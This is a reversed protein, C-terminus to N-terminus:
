RLIALDNSYPKSPPTGYELIIEGKKSKIRRRSIHLVAREESAPKKKENDRTPFSRLQHIGYFSVNETIPDMTRYHSDLIKCTITHYFLNIGRYKHLLLLFNRLFLLGGNFLLRGKGFFSNRIPPIFISINHVILICLKVEKKIKM